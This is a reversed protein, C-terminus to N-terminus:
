VIDSHPRSCTFVSTLGSASPCNPQTSPNPSTTSRGLEFGQVLDDTEVKATLFIVPIGATEPNAKLARCVDFGDMVPMMVDLLILDPSVKTAIDLAQQGDQAVNIQYGERELVEGLIQLNRVTDDAILIRSETLENM